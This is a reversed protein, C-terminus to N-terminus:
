GLLGQELAAAFVAKAMIPETIAYVKKMSNDAHGNIQTMAGPFYYSTKRGPNGGGNNFLDWYANTVLRLRELKPSDPSTVLGYHPILKSVEIRLPELPHDANWFNGVEEPANTTPAETETIAHSMTYRLPRRYKFGYYHTILLFFM